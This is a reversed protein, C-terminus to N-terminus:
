GVCFVFFVHCSRSVFESVLAGEHKELLSQGMSLPVMFCSSTVADPKPPGDLPLPAGPAGFPSAPAKPDM